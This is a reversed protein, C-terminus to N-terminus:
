PQLSMIATVTASANFSLRLQYFPKTVMYSLPKNATIKVAEYLMWKEGDFTGEVTLTGNTDSTFFLTMKSWGNTIIPMSSLNAVVREDYWVVVRAPPLNYRFFISPDELAVIGYARDGAYAGAFAVALKGKYFTMGTIGMFSGFLPVINPQTWPPAYVPFYGISYVIGKVYFMISGDYM